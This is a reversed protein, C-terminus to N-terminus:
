LRYKFWNVRPINTFLHTKNWVSPTQPVPDSDGATYRTFCDQNQRIVQSVVATLKHSPCSPKLYRCVVLGLRLNVADTCSVHTNPPRSRSWVCGWTCTQPVVLVDSFIQVTFCSSYTFYSFCWMIFLLKFETETNRYHKIVWYVDSGSEKRMAHSRTQIKNTKKGKVGANELPEWCHRVSWFMLVNRINKEWSKIIQCMWKINKLFILLRVQKWKIRKRPCRLRMQHQFSVYHRARYSRGRLSSIKMQVAKFYFWLDLLTKRTTDWSCMDWRPPFWPIQLVM